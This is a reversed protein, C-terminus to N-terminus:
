WRTRPTGLQVTVGPLGLEGTEVKGPVHRRRAQLRALRRRRHPRPAPKPEVAQKAARRCTPGAPHRDARAARRRGPPAADDLMMRDAGHRHREVDVPVRGLALGAPQLSQVISRGLANVAGLNPDQVYMIRWTVGTAFASIAMPLFVVTKFAVSWGVRETLVAFILGIATVFAPVVAVWILNNKIATTLTSRRSSRSTTTSGSSTTSGTSGTSAGSSRTSTPYVIWVGLLVLAPLLFLRGGPLPAPRPGRRRPPAAAVPPEATISGSSMRGYKGKKYASAGVVRAEAPHGSVDKPNASSTRSSGGSARASRARRVRGAAPRVHRVRREEGERDRVRDRADDRGPLREGAHEQQRDRLRGERGHRPRRGADGLFKVFAEIAPNDRFAVITDGGIVVSPPSGNISPFPFEGYDTGPKAKVTAVGPVFDGELVMAAKPPNQFVNNVSTPFDTQVAGSTGGAM